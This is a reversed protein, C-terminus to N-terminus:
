LFGVPKAPPNKNEGEDPIESFVCSGADQTKKRINLFLKCYFGNNESVYHTIIICLLINDRKILQKIRKQIFTM